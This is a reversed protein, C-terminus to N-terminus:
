LSGEIKLLNKNGMRSSKYAREKALSKIRLLSKEDPFKLIVLFHKTDMSLNEIEVGPLMLRSLGKLVERKHREGKDIKRYKQTINKRAYQSQLAPYDLLIEDVQNQITLIAQNYRIGEVIFMLAFLLFIAGLTWAQKKGIISHAASSFSVGGVPKFSDSFDQYETEEDLLVRPVLTATHQVNILADNEDLVVPMEFKEASQEAFYLKSVRETELGKLALFDIIETPAYAIFVWEDGDKFVYYEYDQDSSLLNELVSPALKKAQHRYRLPLNERKLTYFQPSLMIEYVTDRDVPLMGRHVLLLPKNSGM